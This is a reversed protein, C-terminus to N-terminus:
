GVDVRWPAAPKKRRRTSTCVSGESSAEAKSILLALERILGWGWKILGHTIEGIAKRVRKEAQYMKCASIDRLREHLIHLALLAPIVGSELHFTTRHTSETPPNRGYPIPNM